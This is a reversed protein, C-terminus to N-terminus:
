EAATCPPRRASPSHAPTATRLLPSRPSRASARLRSPCGCSSLDMAPPVRACRATMPRASGDAGAFSTSGAARCRRTRSTAPRPAACSHPAVARGSRFDTSGPSRLHIELARDVLGRGDRCAGGRHRHRLGARVANRRREVARADAAVRASWSARAHAARQQRLRARVRRLRTWRRCLRCRECRDTLDGLAHAGSDPAAYRARSAGSALEFNLLASRGSDSASFHATMPLASTTAWLVGRASDVGLAFMGWSNDANFKVSAPSEGPIRKVYSRRRSARLEGPLAFTRRRVRHGGLDHRSGSPSVRARARWRREDRARAAGAAFRACAVGRAGRVARLMASDLASGMAAIAGM